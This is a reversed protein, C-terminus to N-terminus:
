GPALYTWPKTRAINSNPPCVIWYDRIKIRNNSPGCMRWLPMWCIQMVKIALIAQLQDFTLFRFIQRKKRSELAGQRGNQPAPTSEQYFELDCSIVGRRHLYWRVLRTINNQRALNTEFHIGNLSHILEPKDCLKSSIIGLCDIFKNTTKFIWRTM